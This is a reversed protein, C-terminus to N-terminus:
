LVYGKLVVVSYRTAYNTIFQRNINDGSYPIGGDDEFALADSMWVPRHDGQATNCDVFLSGVFMFDPDPGSEAIGSGVTGDNPFSLFRNVVTNNIIATQQPSTVM